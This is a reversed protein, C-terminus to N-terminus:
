NYLYYRRWLAKDVEDGIQYSLSQVDFHRPGTQCRYQLRFWKGRSRFVAGDAAVQDNKEIPPKFTYAVVKDVRLEPNDRNIRLMVETDCVEELRTQSDLREFQKRLRPEYALAAGQQLLVVLGTLILPISRSSSIALRSFM